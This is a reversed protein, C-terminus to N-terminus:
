GTRERPYKYAGQYRRALMYRKINDHEPDLGSSLRTVMETLPIRMMNMHDNVKCLYFIHEVERMFIFKIRLKAEYVASYFQHYGDLAPRNQLRNNYIVEMDLAAVYPHKKSQNQRGIDRRKNLYSGIALM